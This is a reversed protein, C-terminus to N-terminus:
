AVLRGPARLAAHAQVLVDLPMWPHRLCAADEPVHAKCAEPTGTSMVVRIGPWLKGVVNALRRGDMGGTLMMAVDDGRDRLVEVAAEGSGCAVVDFKTEELLAVASARLTADEDVVVALASKRPPELM